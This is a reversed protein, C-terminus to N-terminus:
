ARPKMTPFLLVDKISFCDTMLMVMRDIGIGMGGTPPMAYELATIFDEDMMNAEDDGAERKRVQDLFRERQDDPDNLESFANAIERGTVFLEFRETLWDSDKIKKALPSVEIPYDCIFTPQILNEEVKQEFAENLLEGRTLNGEFVIGAKKAITRAQEDSECKSFDVGAYELVADVMTMRKWPAKLSIQTEQYTLVDKGLVKEACYIFLKECLDMMGKYDTYAQYLEVTTFEPNHRPSMGENRFIRGIEYVREFGGVILRKLHLETAIRLYMDMDLTNHHTIFPKAAAGGASPQLIPTEVEIYDQMDLFDRVCKIIRSRAYFTEKVEPNVILDVYRQRYRIDTDKLGHWKEPLPQLSKSLLTIQHAKVTVEGANTQFAEGSIGVIDGIDMRKYETYPEEGMVDKRAYVQIKGHGDLIHFFSAKGMVRKSIIRGAVSVEKGEFDDFKEIIEVSSNKKDFFTIQYPDQGDSKLSELKERRVRLIESLEQQDINEQEAM